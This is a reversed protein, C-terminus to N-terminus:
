LDTLERTLIRSDGAEIDKIASLLRSKNAPSSLLYTTTDMSEDGENKPLRGLLKLLNLISQRSKLELLTKIMNM